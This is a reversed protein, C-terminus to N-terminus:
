NGVMPFNFFKNFLEKNLNSRNLEGCSENGKFFGSIWGGLYYYTKATAMNFNDNIRVIKSELTRVGFFTKKFEYFAYPTTAHDIKVGAICADERACRVGCWKIHDSKNIASLCNKAGLKDVWFRGYKNPNKHFKRWSTEIFTGKDFLADRANHRIFFNSLASSRKEPINSNNNFISGEENIELMSLQHSYKEFFGNVKPKRSVELGSSVGCLSYFYLRKPIIDWTPILIFVLLAVLKAKSTPTFIIVIIAILCYGIFIGGIVIGM